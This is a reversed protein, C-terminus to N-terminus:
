RRKLWWAAWAVGYGLTQAGALLAAGGLFYDRPDGKLADNTSYVFTFLAVAGLAMGITSGWWWAWKHAEQAAEDLGRWWRACAWLGAGMAITTSLAVVTPAVIGGDQSTESLFGAIGGAVGGAVACVALAAGYRALPHGSMRMEMTM